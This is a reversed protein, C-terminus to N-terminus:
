SGEGGIYDTLAALFAKRKPRSVQLECPGVQVTSQRLERVQALNVLYGSNCRAFPCDALKEEFAKLTGPASFDGEDTYFHVRHGESELYYISATDLRRLGGEVPVTLYHKARKELRAVAKLLQQSFAFYPVPKLVYDLAGVSYGRIAYQAMNTIFILIVDADMQRIREATTMGDLHKMEVDLFIIDYVARYDELIDVGDAFVTVEFETGYQRTYRRVYEQLVGQVEADDEVIAVRIMVAGGKGCRQPVTVARNYRLGTRNALPCEAVFPLAAWLQGGHVDVGVLQAHLSGALGDVVDLVRVKQGCLDDHRVLEDGPLAAARRLLLALFHKKLLVTDAEPLQRAASAIRGGSYVAYFVSCGGPTNKHGFLCLLIGAWRHFVM